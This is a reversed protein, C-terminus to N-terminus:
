NSFNKISRIISTKIKKPKSQKKSCISNKDVIQYYNSKLLEKLYNYIKMLTIEECRGVILVSGTRFIMFSIGTTDIESPTLSLENKTDLYIKAQIGPYSCPDYVCSINYTERLIKYLKQRQIYFGCNFNSNMLVTEESGNVYEVKDKTIDKLVRLLVSTVINIQEQSQVGPMEIKGTNFIKVHFEKFIEKIKVRVITVFCNYFAGKKLTRASTIDKRSIGISVKRSDKYKIRGEPNDIHILINPKFYEYQEQLKELEEVQERTTSNFKMQKKVVGERLDGYSIIPINWFIEYLDFNSNFYAIVTKTSIYIESPNPIVELNTDKATNLEEKIKDEKEENLFKEWAEDINGLM